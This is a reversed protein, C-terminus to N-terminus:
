ALARRRALALVLGCLTAPLGPIAGTSCGGIPGPEPAPELDATCITEAPGVTSAASVSVVDFCPPQPGRDDEWQEITLVHPGAGLAVDLHTNQESTTVQSPRGLDFRGVIEVRSWPDAEPVEVSVEIRRTPLCCGWAYDIEGSWAGLAIADVRPAGPDGAAEEGATFTLTAVEGEETTYGLASLVYAEGAVWGGRPPRLTVARSSAGVGTLYRAGLAFPAGPGSTVTVEPLYNSAYIVVADSPVDERAPSVFGDQWPGWTDAHAIAIWVSVSVLNM